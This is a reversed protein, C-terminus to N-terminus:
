PAPPSSSSELWGGADAVRTRLVVGAAVCRAVFVDARGRLSSRLSRAGARARHPDPELAYHSPGAGSLGIRTFGAARLLAPIAALSPVLDYLPRGFANDLSGIDDSPWTIAAGDTFDSPRLARYLTATKSPITLRPSVVVATLHQLQPLPRLVEGRGTALAVGGRLFFPVDSGLEAAIGALGAEDVDLLLAARLALLTAAADSSAGGLGAAAPIRKRLAIAVPGSEHAVLLRQAARVALNDAVGLEPRDTWFAVAAAENVVLRDFISVTALVTRIEHYGDDRRGLIALGLNLKAPALAEVIM